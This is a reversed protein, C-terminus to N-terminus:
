VKIQNPQSVKTTQVLKKLWLSFPRISKSQALMLLLLILNLWLSLKLSKAKAKAKAFRLLAFLKVKAFKPAFRLVLVLVL